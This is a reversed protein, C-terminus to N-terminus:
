TTLFKDIKQYLSNINKAKIECEWIVLIKWGLDYLLDFNKKDRLVNGEIKAKWFEANKRPWKFYQCNHRHWFCGNVLIIKNRGPFVIDPKGPLDIRHLRYRYGKAWLWKRIMLEPKTDKDRIQSM